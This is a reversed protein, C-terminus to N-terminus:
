RGSRSTGPCLRWSRVWPGSRSRRGPAAWTWPQEALIGAAHEAFYDCHGACKEVEARGETLTKGMEDTMLAAFEDARRRLVTAAKSMLAARETFGTRKWGEFAARTARAIALAEVPTHGDYTRRAEGITPDVAQFTQTAAM